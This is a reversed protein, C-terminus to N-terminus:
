KTDPRVVLDRKENKLMEKAKKEKEQEEAKKQRYINMWRTYLRSINSYLRDSENENNVFIICYLMHVTQFFSTHLSQYLTRDDIIDANFCIAYYELLNALDNCESFFLNLSLTLKDAVTHSDKVEKESMSPVIYTRYYSVILRHQVDEYNNLITKVEDKDFDKLDKEFLLDPIDKIKEDTSYLTAFRDIKPIADEAFSRALKAAEVRKKDLRDNKHDNCSSSYQILALITSLAVCLGALIQSMYYCFELTHDSDKWIVFYPIAISFILYIIATFIGLLIKHSSLWNIDYKNKLEKFM